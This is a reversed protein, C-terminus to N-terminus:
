EIDGIGSLYAATAEESQVIHYFFHDAKQRYKKACDESCAFDGDQNLLVGGYEPVEQGCNNNACKM